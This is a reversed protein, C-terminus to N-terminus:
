KEGFWVGAFGINEKNNEKILVTISQEPAKMIRASEKTLTIVLERKQENTLQGSDVTIVPM